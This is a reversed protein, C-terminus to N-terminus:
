AKKVKKGGSIYKGIFFQIFLLLYSGYMLACAILITEPDKCGCSGPAENHRMAFMVTFLIGLVMQMIQGMTLLKNWKPRFGLETLTYYYYMFTHITANMCIFFPGKKLSLWYTLIVLRQQATANQVEAKGSSYEYFGAYWCFLLVTAHHFWHLFPVPRTPNKVILFLTDLLEAYKSLMFLWVFTVMTSPGTEFIVRDADCVVDSLNFEYRTWVNTVWPLLVGVLMAFSLVSLVANWLIMIPKLVVSTFSTYMANFGNYLPKLVLPLLFVMLLYVGVSAAAPLTLDGFLAETQHRAESMNMSPVYSDIFQQIQSLM